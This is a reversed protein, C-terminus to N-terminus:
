HSSTRKAWQWARRLLPARLAPHTVDEKWVQRTEVHVSTLAAKLAAM